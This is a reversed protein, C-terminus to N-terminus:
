KQEEVADGSKKSPEMALWVKKILDLAEPLEGAAFKELVTELAKTSKVEAWHENFYGLVAEQIEDYDFSLPSFLEYAVNEVTLSRLIRSKSLERLETIEYCDALRFMSHPSCPEIDHWDKQGDLEDFADRFWIEPEESEFSEAGDRDHDALAAQRAVLYDSPLATFPILSTHFYALMARYTTFDTETIEIFSIRLPVEADHDAGSRKPEKPRKEDENADNKSSQVQSPSNALAGSPDQLQPSSIYFPRLEASDYTLSRDLASSTSLERLDTTNSDNTEAFGSKFVIRPRTLQMM